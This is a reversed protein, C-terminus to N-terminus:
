SAKKEMEPFLAYQPEELNQNDKTYTVKMSTWRTGSQSNRHLYFDRMASAPIHNLGINEGALNKRIVEDLSKLLDNRFRMPLGLVYMPRLVRVQPRLQGHFYKNIYLTIWSVSAVKKFQYDLVVNIPIEVKQHYVLVASPKYVLLDGDFKLEQMFNRFRAKM